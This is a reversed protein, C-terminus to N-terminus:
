SRSNLLNEIQKIHELVKEKIEKSVGKTNIKIQNNSHIIRNVSVKKTKSYSKM